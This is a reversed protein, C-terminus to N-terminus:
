SAKPRVEVLDAVAEFTSGTSWRVLATEAGVFILGIVVGIDTSDVHRVAQYLELLPGLGDAPDDQRGGRILGNPRSLVARSSDLLWASSVRAQTARHVAAIAREALAAARRAREDVTRM